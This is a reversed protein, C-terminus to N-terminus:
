NEEDDGSTRTKIRVRKGHAGHVDGALAELIAARKEPTLDDLVGSALLRAMAGASDGHGDGIIKITKTHGGEGDDSVWVQEHDGHLEMKTGDESIFMSHAGHGDTTHMLHKKIIVNHDCDDCDIDITTGHGAMDVTIPEEGEVTITFGSETREIFVPTGDDAYVTQLDGPEMDGLDELNVVQGNDTVIKLHIEREIIPEDAAAISSLALLVTLLLLAIKKM